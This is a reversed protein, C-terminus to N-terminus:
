LHIRGDGDGRTVHIRGGGDAQAEVAKALQPSLALLYNSPGARFGCRRFAQVWRDQMQNTLTLEAGARALERATLAAVAERADECAVCDLISGVLLDGFHASDEMRTLYCVSWGVTTAGRRVAFRRLRPDSSPYLADLTRRDRAVAFSCSSRFKEWVEDAWDGWGSVPELRYGTERAFLGRAQGARVALWALGSRGALAAALRRGRSRRFPGIQTIFRRPRVVKYLFPTPKLTWGGAKLLRPLPNAQDGMGVVFVYPGRQQMFRVLSLSVMGYRRDAIGESLPSQYNFATASDGAVWAPQGWELVGGRVAEDDVALLHRREIAEAPNGAVPREPLLFDTSASARRMRENFARAAEAREPTYPEIRIAM